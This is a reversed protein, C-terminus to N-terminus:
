FKENTGGLLDIDVNKDAGAEIEFLEEEKFHFLSAIFNTPVTAIKTNYVTVESNYLRRAAQLQSEMKSLSKQLELFQQSAKLDPNNEALGVMSNCMVNLKAGSKLNKTQDYENRLEAVKTMVSQEHNMYGKVCEVLNPILDFRQTLYVDISSKAQKIKNRRTVISNYTFFVWALVIVIIIILVGM